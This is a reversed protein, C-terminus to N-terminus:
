IMVEMYLKRILTLNIPPDFIVANPVAKGSEYDEAVSCLATFTQDRHKCASGAVGSMRYIPRRVMLDTSFACAFIFNHYDDATFRMASCGMHTNKEAMLLATNAIGKDELTAPFYIAMKLTISGLYLTWDQIIRLMLEMDELDEKPGTYYIADYLYGGYYFDKTSICFKDTSCTIIALRAFEELDLSYSMRAMRAAPKLFFGGGSATHNRFENIASLLASRFGAMPLIKADEPCRKNFKNANYCGLHNAGCYPTDCFKDELTRGLSFISLLAAAILCYAKM